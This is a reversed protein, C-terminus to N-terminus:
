WYHLFHTESGKLFGSFHKFTINFNVGPLNKIEDKDRQSQAEVAVFCLAALALLLFRQM